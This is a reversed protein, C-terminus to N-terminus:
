PGICMNDFLILPSTYLNTASIGLKILVITYYSSLYSYSLIAAKQCGLTAAYNHLDNRLIIYKYGM